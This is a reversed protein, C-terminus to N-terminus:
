LRLYPELSAWLSPEVAEKIEYAPIDKQNVPFPHRFHGALLVPIGAFLVDKGCVDRLTQDLTEYCGHNMKTCEDWLIVKTQRLLAPVVNKNIKWTPSDINMKGSFLPHKVKHRGDFLCAHIGSNTIHVAIDGRSDAVEALIHDIFWTKGIGGQGNLFILNGKSTDVPGYIITMVVNHAEKQDETLESSVMVENSESTLKTPGSFIASESEQIVQCFNNAPEADQVKEQILFGQIDPSAIQSQASGSFAVSESVQPIQTSFGQFDPSASVQPIQGSDVIPGLDHAPDESPRVVGDSCPACPDDDSRVRPLQSEGSKKAMQSARYQKKM